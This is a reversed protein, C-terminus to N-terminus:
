RGIQILRLLISYSPEDDHHSRYSAAAAALCPLGCSGGLKGALRSSVRSSAPFWLPLKHMMRELSEILQISIAMVM